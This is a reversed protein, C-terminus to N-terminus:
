AKNYFAMPTEMVFNIVLSQSGFPMVDKMFARWSILKLLVVIVTNQGDYKSLSVFFFM